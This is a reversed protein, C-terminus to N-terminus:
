VRKKNLKDVTLFVLGMEQGAEIVAKLSSLVYSDAHDTMRDHDHFLVVGGAEMRIKQVAHNVDRHSELFTDQCDATYFVIPIRHFWLYLLLPFNLKGHPPRYIYKNKKGPLVANIARWGKKLDSISKWPLMKWAHGHSYSHSAILHNDEMISKIIKERGPISRGLLFFSAKINNEKLIALIQPTLRHGPGDDFTLYIAKQSIAKKRQYARILRGYILPLPIYLMLVFVVTMFVGIM